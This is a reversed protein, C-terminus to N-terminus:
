TTPIAQPLPLSRCAVHAGAASPATVQCSASLQTHPVRPQQELGDCRDTEELKELQAVLRRALQEGEPLLGSVRLRQHLVAPAGEALVTPLCEPSQDGLAGLATLAYDAAKPSCGGGRLLAVLSPIAVFTSQQLAPSSAIKAFAHAAHEAAERKNSCLTASLAAVAGREAAIAEQCARGNAALGCLAMAAHMKVEGTSSRLLRVLHPIVGAAVLSSGTAPAASHGYEPKPASVSYVLLAGICQPPPSQRQLLSPLCPVVHEAVAEQNAACHCMLAVLAAAADVQTAASNCRLLQALAPIGGAAAIARLGEQSGQALEKLRWAAERRAAERGSSLRRVLVPIDRLARRGASGAPGSCTPLVPLVPWNGALGAALPLPPPLCVSAATLRSRRPRLRVEGYRRGPRWPRRLAAFPPVWLARFFFHEIPCITATHQLSLRPVAAPSYLPCPM